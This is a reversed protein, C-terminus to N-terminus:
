SSSNEAVSRSSLSILSSWSYSPKFLKHLKPVPRIPRFRKLFFFFIILCVYKIFLQVCILWYINIILRKSCRTDIVWVYKYYRSSSHMICNQELGDCVEAKYSLSQLGQRTECCKLCFIKTIFVPPKRWLLIM